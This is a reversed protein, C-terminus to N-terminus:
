KKHSVIYKYPGVGDSDSDDSDSDSDDFAWDGPGGVGLVIHKGLAGKFASVRREFDEAMAGTQTWEPTSRVQRLAVHIPKIKTGYNIHM